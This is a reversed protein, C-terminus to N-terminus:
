PAGSGGVVRTLWYDILEYSCRSAPEPGFGRQGTIATSEGRAYCVSRCSVWPTDFLYAIPGPESVWCEPGRAMGSPFRFAAGTLREKVTSRSVCSLVGSFGSFGWRGVSPGFPLVIPASRLFGEPM